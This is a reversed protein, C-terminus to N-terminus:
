KLQARADAVVELPRDADGWAAVVEGFLRRATEADGAAADLRALRHRALISYIPHADPLLGDGAVLRFGDIAHRYAEPARAGKGCEGDIFNDVTSEEPRLDAALDCRKAAYAVVRLIHPRASTRVSEPLDALEAVITAAAAALAPDGGTARATALRARAHFVAGAAARELRTAEAVGREAWDAAQAFHGTEWELDVLQDIADLSRGAVGLEAGSTAAEGLEEEALAFKGQLTSIMGLARKAAVRDQASGAALAREAITRAEVFRFDAALAVADYVDLAPRGGTLLRARELTRVAADADGAYLLADAAAEQAAPNEPAREAWGQLFPGVEADRGLMRMLDVVDGGFQLDPHLDALRRLLALEEDTRGLRDLTRVMMWAALLDDGQAANQASLEALAGDLDKAEFLRYADVLRRGSDDDARSGALAVTEELRKRSRDSGIGECEVVELAARFFSPDAALAAEAERQCAGMDANQSAFNIRLAERYRRYAHADRTGARAMDALEDPGPAVEGRGAGVRDGLMAALTDALHGLDQAQASALRQPQGRAGLWVQAVWVGGERAELRGFVLVNAGTSALLDRRDGVPVGAALGLDSVRREVDVSPITDFRHDHALRETLLRTLARPSWADGDPGVFPAVALRRTGSPLGRPILFYVVLAAALILAAIAGALIFRPRRRPPLITTTTHSVGLGALLEGGSAPRDARDPELSQAVLQILAVPLEPRVRGLDPAREGSSRRVHTAAAHAGVLPVKGSAMQHVVLGWAYVDARADLEDGRLHEPAMYMPTGVVRGSTGTDGQAIAVRALGFDMVVARGDPRLMVNSPKMDRHLINEAHAAALAAAM